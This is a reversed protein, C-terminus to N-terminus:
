GGHNGTVNGNTSNSNGAVIFGSDSTQIISNAEDKGFGGLMSKWLLGGGDDVKVIWYDDSGHNESAAIFGDTSWSYGAVVYSNDMTPAICRAVDYNSGGL